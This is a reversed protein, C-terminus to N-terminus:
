LCLYFDTLHNADPRDDALDGHLTLAFAVLLALHLPLMLWVLRFGGLAIAVAIPLTLAVMAGHGLRLSHRRNAVFAYVFTVLYVALPVAWLLPVSAIDTSAYTTVALMLSSPVFALGIWRARRRWSVARQAADVARVDDRRDSQQRVVAFGCTATIVGLLVFG